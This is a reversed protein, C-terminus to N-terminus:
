FHRLIKCLKGSGLVGNAQNSYTDSVPLHWLFGFWLSKKGLYILELVNFCFSRNMNKTTPTEGLHLIQHLSRHFFLRLVKYTM